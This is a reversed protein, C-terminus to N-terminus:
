SNNKINEYFKYMEGLTSTKNYITEFYIFNGGNLRIDDGFFYFDMTKYFDECKAGNKLILFSFFQNELGIVYM